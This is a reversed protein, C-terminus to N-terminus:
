RKTFIIFSGAKMTAANVADTALQKIRPTIITEASFTVLGFITASAARNATGNQLDISTFYNIPQSIATSRCVMTPATATGEAVAVQQTKVGSAPTTFNTSSTFEAYCGSTSTTAAIIVAEVQYTGAPVTITEASNTYSGSTVSSIAAQLFIKYTPGGYRADALGLSMASQADTAAQGAALQVQGSFTQAGAITMGADIKAKIWTWLTSLLMWGGAPHTVALKDTDAAASDQTGANLATAIRAATEDGTNIGSLNAVAGNALMANSIAGNAIATANGTSTVPGTLNANTTVTAANGTTSSSTTANGVLAGTFTTATISTATAVGLAPTTFSPSILPAKLALADFVANSSVANAEGNAVADVVTIGSGSGAPGQAASVTVAIPAANISVTVEAM